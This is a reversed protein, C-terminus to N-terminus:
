ELSHTGSHTHLGEPRPSIALKIKIKRIYFYFDVYDPIIGGMDYGPPFISHCSFTIRKFHLFCDWGKEAWFGWIPLYVHLFSLPPSLMSTLFQILPLTKITLAQPLSGLISRSFLLPLFMKTFYFVQNFDFCVFVVKCWQSEMEPFFCNKFQDGLCWMMVSGASWNWEGGRQEGHQLSLPERSSRSGLLYM